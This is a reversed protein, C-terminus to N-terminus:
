PCTPPCNPHMGWPGPPKGLYSKLRNLDNINVAGNGDLDTVLDTVPTIGLRAKLRNFDNINVVGDNNFDPDCINGYGDSDSDLQSPNAVNICNDLLDPIGDGDSDQAPVVLLGDVNGLGAIIAVDNFVPANPDTVYIHGNVDDSYYQNGAADYTLDGINHNNSLGSPQLVAQLTLAGTAKDVTYLSSYGTSIGVLSHTVTNYTLADIERALGSISTPGIFTAVGTSTNISYLGVSTGSYSTGFLTSTDPDYALGFLDPVHTSGVLTASGTTLNVTYLSSYFPPVSQRGDVMYALGPTASAALDGFTVNVGTAGIPTVSSTATNILELSANPGNVLGYLLASHTPLSGLLMLGALAIMLTNHRTRV